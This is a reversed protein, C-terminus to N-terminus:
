IAEEELDIFAPSPEIGAGAIENIIQYSIKGKVFSAEPIQLMILMANGFSYNYFRSQFCLYRLWDENSNIGDLAHEIRELAAKIKGQDKNM